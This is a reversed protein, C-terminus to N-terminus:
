LIKTGFGPAAKAEHEALQQVLQVRTEVALKGFIKTMHHKVTNESLGSLNAIECNTKGSRVWQAIEGERPSLGALRTAFRTDVRLREIVNCLMEHMVPVIQKLTEVHAASLRGPIRHFSHYTGVCHETDYVGLAATNRLGWKRFCELWM